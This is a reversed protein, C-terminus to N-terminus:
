ESTSVNANAKILKNVLEEAKEPDEIEFELIGNSLLSDTMRKSETLDLGSHERFAKTM